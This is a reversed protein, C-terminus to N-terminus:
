GALGGGKGAIGGYAALGGHAAISSMIRGGISSAMYEYLLYSEGDIWEADDSPAQIAQILRSEGDIYRATTAM